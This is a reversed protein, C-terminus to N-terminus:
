GEENSPPPPQIQVLSARADSKCDSGKSREPVGGEDYLGLEQAQKTLQDLAHERDTKRFIREWNDRYKDTTPKSTLSDGTIDNKTSM